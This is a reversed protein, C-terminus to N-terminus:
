ILSKYKEIMRDIVKKYLEGNFKLCDEKNSGFFPELIIADNKTRKLFEFGRQRINSLEKVERKKYSMNKHMEDIYFQGVEYMLSNGKYVLCESGNVVPDNVSNFHLEFVLDYSKTLKATEIQRGTYSLESFHTFCDGFDLLYDSSFDDWFDFESARLYKSYAGKSEEHHGIVFAVKVNHKDLPRNCYKFWRFFRERYRM